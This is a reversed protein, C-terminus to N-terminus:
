RADTRREVLIPFNAYAANGEGDHVTVFLRYAGPRRPAEFRLSGPSPQEFRLRMRKPLVEPDGGVSKARSEQMVSWRYDLADEEPDRADVRARLRQGPAVVVSQAASQSELEIPKIEPSRNAPWAGTWAYQMADVSATAEGSELFLGYWTPTREQKQGWLFVFSGLCRRQDADIYRRYREALTAAKTSSDDEIPAGWDTVPSEWHGTPGWETVLYPRDWGSSQLKEPLRSIEGYLQLGLLDLSPARTRIQQVLEADFGALTTTVPHDPDIRHIMEALQGVADWVRPNRAELNLENGVVWMLLAPHDKYRRVEARVRDLQRAVARADDYDFGHREAGLEIGLAVFLGNSHARDLVARGSERENDTRWTRFANGGRAALAEQDGHELGAGKVRFPAGNVLLQYRGANEVIRVQSPAVHRAAATASSTGIALLCISVCVVRALRHRASGGTSVVPKM